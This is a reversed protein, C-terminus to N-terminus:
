LQKANKVLIGLRRGKCFYNPDYRTSVAHAEIGRILFVNGDIEVEEGPRLEAHAVAFELEVLKCMGRGAINLTELSNLKVM